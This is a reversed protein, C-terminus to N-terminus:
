QANTLQLNYQVVLTFVNESKADFRLERLFPVGLRFQATSTIRFDIYPTVALRYKLGEECLTGDSATCREYELGLGPVISPIFNGRIFEDTQRYEAENRLDIARWTLSFSGGPYNALQQGEEATARRRSFYGALVATIREVPTYEVNATLNWGKLGYYNDVLLNSDQDTETGGLIEFLQVNAGLKFDLGGTVVDTLYERYKSVVTDRFDQMRDDREMPMQGRMNKFTSLFISKARKGTPAANSWGLGLGFTTVGSEQAFNLTTAKTWSYDGAQLKFPAFLVKQTNRDFQVAVSLLDGASLDVSSFLATANTLAGALGAVSHMYSSRVLSDTANVSRLLGEQVHSQGAARTPLLFTLAVLHIMVARM